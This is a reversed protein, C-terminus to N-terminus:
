NLSHKKDPLDLQNKEPEVICKLSSVITHMSEYRFVEILDDITNAGNKIISASQELGKKTLNFILQLDEEFSQSILPDNTEIHDAAAATKEKDTTNAM